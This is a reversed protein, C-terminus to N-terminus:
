MLECIEKIYNNNSQIYKEFINKIDNEREKRTQIAEKIENTVFEIIKNERYDTIDIYDDILALIKEALSKATADEENDKMASIYDLFYCLDYKEKIKPTVLNEVDKKTEQPDGIETNKIYEWLSLARQFNPDKLIINTKKIPSKVPVAQSLSKIFSSNEFDMVVDRIYEIKKKTAELDFDEPEQKKTSQLKLTISIDENDYSTTGMYNVVNNTEVKPNELEKDTYKQVFKSLEKVLTYIFRNEYLDWSDEKEINLVKSPKVMGEEDVDQIFNTHQALHQVTETSIKKSKEVIVIEEEQQLFKKPNRIINDLYPLTEEVIPIWSFDRSVNETIRTFELNSNVKSNFLEYEKEEINGFIETIKDIM